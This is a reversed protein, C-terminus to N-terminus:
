RPTAKPTPSAPLLIEVTQLLRDYAEGFGLIAIDLKNKPHTFIVADLPLGDKASADHYIVTQVGAITADEIREETLPPRPIDAQCAISIKNNADTAHTLQAGRSAIQLTYETDYAFSIGCGKLSYLVSTKPPPSPQADVSPSPSPIEVLVASPSPNTLTQVKGIKRGLNIGILLSAVVALIIIVIITNKHM